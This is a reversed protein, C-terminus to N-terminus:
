LRYQQPDVGLAIPELLDFVCDFFKFRLVFVSPLRFQPSAERKGTDYESKVSFLLM